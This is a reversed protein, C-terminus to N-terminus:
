RNNAKLAEDRLVSKVMNLGSLAGGTLIRMWYLKTLKMKDMIQAPPYGQQHWKLVSAYFDELFNLKRRLHKKANKMKPNHSCFLLDFELTLVRKLSTIQQAISENELCFKIYDYIYLDASFLWGETPEFLAVMDRAHGPIPIIQFTHNLTSISDEVPLINNNPATSGWSIWQSFSLKPPNKMIKTCLPSAYTPVNFHNQLAVLNGNHDEHHHTIFIQEVPLKTLHHMIMKRANSHGTDILLGDVFYSYVYMKPKGWLSSGFQFGQVPPYNFPNTIQM